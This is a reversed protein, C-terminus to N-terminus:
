PRSTMKPLDFGNVKAPAGQDARVEDRIAGPKRASWASTAPTCAAVVMRYWLTEGQLKSQRAALAADFDQGGQQSRGNHVRSSSDLRCWGNGRSLAPWPVRLGTGWFQGHPLRRFTTGDDQGTIAPALTAATHGFSRTAM